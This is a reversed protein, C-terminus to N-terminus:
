HIRKKTHHQLGRQTWEGKFHLSTCIMVTGGANRVFVSSLHHPSNKVEVVHAHTRFRVSLAYM